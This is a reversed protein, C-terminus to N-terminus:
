SDLVALDTSRLSLPRRAVTLWFLESALDLVGAREVADLSRLSHWEGKYRLCISARKVTGTHASTHMTVRLLVHANPRWIWSVSHM